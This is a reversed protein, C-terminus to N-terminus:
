AEPIALVRTAREDADADGRELATLVADFGNLGETSIFSVSNTFHAQSALLTNVQGIGALDHLKALRIIESVHVLAKDQAAKMEARWAKIKSRAKDRRSKLEAAAKAAAESAIREDLQAIAAAYTAARQEASRAAAESKAIDGNGLAAEIAAASHASAQSRAEALKAALDSRQDALTKFLRM